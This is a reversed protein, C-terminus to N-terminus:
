KLYNQILYILTIMVSFDGGVNNPVVELSTLQNNNCYFGSGVTNPAGNLSTLKNNCGYFIGYVNRFKFPIKELKKDNLAISGNVDISGDCNITYTGIICENLM